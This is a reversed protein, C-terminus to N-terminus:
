TKQLREITGAKINWAAAQNKLQHGDLSRFDAFIYFVATDAFFCSKLQLFKDTVLLCNVFNNNRVNQYVTNSICENRLYNSKIKVIDSNSSLM